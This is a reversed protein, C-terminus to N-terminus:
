RVPGVKRACIRTGLLEFDFVITDKDLYSVPFVSVADIFFVKGLAQIGDKWPSPPVAELSEFPEADDPDDSSKDILKIWAKNFDVRCANEEDQSTYSGSVSLWGSGIIPFNYRAHSTMKGNPKMIYYVPDFSGQLLSGMTYIHPAYVIRWTGCALPAFSQTSGPADVPNEKTLDAVLQTREKNASNFTQPDDLKQLLIDKTTTTPTAKKFMSTFAETSSGLCVFIFAATLCKKM